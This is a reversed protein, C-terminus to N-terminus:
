FNFSLGDFAPIINKPLVKKLYNYDLDVHMNILLSKKPKLLKILKLTSFLDLHTIHEHLRFCDIILFNLNKMKKLTTSPIEKCDSIYAIKNFLYGRTKVAGHIVDLSKFNLKNNNKSISFKNSTNKIEMIQPYLKSSKFLWPYSAIIRMKTQTNCYIPIRKKNLFYIPRFEFIGATQDAHEHTYIIADINKIKNDILQQRIDPSTDILISINKYQIHACCRTRINKKINKKCNGWNQNLWPTGLSSGCGLITFKNKM